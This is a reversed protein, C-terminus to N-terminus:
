KKLEYERCKEIYRKAFDINAWLHLHPYGAFLTESGHICNREVGTSPKVAKFDDGDDNSKSYHFEHANIGWGEKALLNDGKAKLTTYGFNQLRKTLESKMDIAGVMEYELESEDKITNGLYMFGGCEAYVPMGETIATKISNLMSKNKSLKEAFVEPYGGGLIIGNIGEPIKEDNLPSFTVIKAGMKKLLQLSDEYYFCFAKDKAVGITVPEGQEIEINDCEMAPAEKAIELLGDIDIYKEGNEGLLDIKHNLSDIESATVLGLHRSEISAEKIKPLFGLTKVGTNSEIIEKYIPYMKESAGNIIVGKINNKYFDTYGKVMAAISLAMGACGVVLVVPTDTENSIYNSSYKSNRIGLGDYFGMVGEIISIDSERSNEAFLYKTIEEGCLFMDLNRSKTGIIESHFMPDIYDPGCKFSTVNLGRNKLAKLIACTVTTKGCGSGTGAIMVRNFNTKM